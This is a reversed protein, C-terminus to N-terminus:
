RFLVDLYVRRGHYFGLLTIALFAPVVVWLDFGPPDLGFVAALLRGGVHFPSLFAVASSIANTNAQLALFDDLTTGPGLFLAAAITLLISQAVGKTTVIATLSSLAAWGAPSQYRRFGAMLLHALFAGFALVSLVSFLAVVEILVFDALPYVGFAFFPSLPVLLATAGFVGGTVTASLLKSLTLDNLDLAYLALSRITGLRVEEGYLALLAILIGLLHFGVAAAYVVTLNSEFWVWPGQFPSSAAFAAAPTLLGAFVFAVALTATWAIWVARLDKRLLALATRWRMEPPFDGFFGNM